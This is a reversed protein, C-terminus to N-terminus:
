GELYNYVRQLDRIDYTQTLWSLAEEASVEGAHFAATAAAVAAYTEDGSEQAQEVVGQWYDAQEEGGPDRQTFDDYIDAFQQMEEENLEVDETKEETQQEQLEPEGAQARYSNIIYELVENVREFNNADLANNYEEIAERPLHSSSWQIAEQLDPYTSALATYYDENYDGPEDENIEVNEFEHHISGDQFERYANPNYGEQPNSVEFDVVKGDANAVPTVIHAM